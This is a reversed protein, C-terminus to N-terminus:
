HCDPAPSESRRSDDLLYLFRLTGDSLDAASRSQQLSKWRLRLQIRQDAAPPFLLKEYDSGFAAQMAADVEREFERDGTYLTHLVSILNLGDPDVQTDARAVQPIRIPADRHTQFGQYIKWAALEKRFDAACHNLSFPGSMFSLLAEQDPTEGPPLTTPTPQPPNLDKHPDPATTTTTTVPEFKQSGISFVTAYQPDRELIKYPSPIKGAEWDCFNGLVEHDIRFASSAGLRALELRYSIAHTAEDTYPPLPTTKVQLWVSPLKGDFLIPEIGGEQLVYKGLRGQAAASFM